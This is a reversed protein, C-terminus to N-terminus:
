ERGKTKDLPQAFVNHKTTFQTDDLVVQKARKNKSNIIIPALLNATMQKIDGGRVTLISYVAVDNESAIVLEELVADDLEFNYGPFFVFPSLVLFALEKTQISQLFFFPSNEDYPILVFNKEQEFGPLGFSFHIIDEEDIELEGFRTTDFKM